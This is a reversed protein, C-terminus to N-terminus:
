FFLKTFKYGIFTMLVYIFVSLYLSLVQILETTDITSTSETSTSETSTAWCTDFTCGDGDNFLIDVLDQDALTDFLAVEDIEGNYESPGFTDRSGIMFEATCSDSPHQGHSWSTTAVGDIWVFVDETTSDFALVWHQWEDVTLSNPWNYGTYTYASCGDDVTISLGGDTNQAIHFTNQNAHYWKTLVQYTNSFDSPKLWLSFSFDQSWNIGTLSSRSLSENNTTDFLASNSVVGTGYTVTNNDALDNNTDTADYRVGSEEDLSWWSVVDEQTVEANSLLPVSLPLAVM